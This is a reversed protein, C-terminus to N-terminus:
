WEPHKNGVRRIKKIVNGTLGGGSHYGELAEALCNHCIPSFNKDYAGRWKRFITIKWIGESGEEECFRCKKM